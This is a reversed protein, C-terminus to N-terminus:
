YNLKLNFFIGATFEGQLSSMGIWGHTNRYRVRLLEVFLINGEEERVYEVHVTRVIHYSTTIYSEM